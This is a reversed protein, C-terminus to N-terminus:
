EGNYDGSMISKFQNQCFPGSDGKIIDGYLTLNIGIAVGIDAFAIQPAAFIVYIVCRIIM